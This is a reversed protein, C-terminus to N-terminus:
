PVELQVRAIVTVYTGTRGPEPALLEDNYSDLVVNTLVRAWKRPWYSVGASVAKASQPRINRARNGAGAFGEDPGVDDFGLSEYRLALDLPAGSGKTAGLVRWIGSASWGFGSVAPLDDLTAGQQLREERGHLVEAKLTFPGRAYQADAGMRRRSGDVHVRRFFSWGSASRGRLSKPRPDFAPDEPDGEATGITVSTGLEFGDVAELVLRLAATPGGRIDEGWADGAFVGAIYRLERAVNLEGGLMVGWDRGPAIGNALLSREAFDTKAASTLFERSVPLKFHGGRVFHDKGLALEVYANRLDRRLSFATGPDDPPIVSNLLENVDFVVEGSIRDGLEAEVGLRLRRVDRMDERLTGTTEDKEVDWGPFGRLDGQFYGTPKLELEGRKWEPPDAAAIAAVGALLVTIMWRFHM